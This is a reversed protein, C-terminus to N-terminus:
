STVRSIGVGEPGEAAEPTLFGAVVVAAMSDAVEQRLPAGRLRTVGRCRRRLTAPPRLIRAPPLLIPVPLRPIRACLRRGMDVILLPMGAALRVRLRLRM